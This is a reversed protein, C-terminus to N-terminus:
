SSCPKSAAVSTTGGPRWRTHSTMSRATTPWLRTSSCGNSSCSAPRTTRRSSANAPPMKQRHSKGKDILWQPALAIEAQNQREYSKGDITSGPLLIYGGWSKLDLGRGFKHAGGKIHTHPPLEYVIHKGGGQTKHVATKTLEDGVLQAMGMFDKFSADGDNRIDIDLVLKGTTLGAVNDNPWQGWWERIQKEDSTALHQWNKIRAVKTNEVVPFVNFGQARAALAADLKTAFM